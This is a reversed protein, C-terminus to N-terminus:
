RGAALPQPNGIFCYAPERYDDAFTKLEHFGYIVMGSDPNTGKEYIVL